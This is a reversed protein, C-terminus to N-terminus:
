KGTNQGYFYDYRFIAVDGLWRFQNNQQQILMGLEKDVM